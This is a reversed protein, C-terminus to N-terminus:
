MLNQESFFSFFRLHQLLISCKSNNCKHLIFMLKMQEIEQTWSESNM